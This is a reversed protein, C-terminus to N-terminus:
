LYITTHICLCVCVKNKTLEEGNGGKQLISGARTERTGIFVLLIAFKTHSNIHIYHMCVFLFLLLVYIILVYMYVYINIYVCVYM